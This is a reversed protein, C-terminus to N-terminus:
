TMLINDIKCLLSKRAYIQSALMPKRGSQRKAEKRWGLADIDLRWVSKGKQNKTMPLFCCKTLSNVWLPWFLQLVWPHQFKLVFDWSFFSLRLSKCASYHYHYCKLFVKQFCARELREMKEVMDELWIAKTKTKWIGQKQSLGVSM